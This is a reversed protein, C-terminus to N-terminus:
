NSYYKWFKFEDQVNMIKNAIFIYEWSECLVHIYKALKNWCLDRIFRARRTPFKLNRRIVHDAAQPFEAINSTRTNGPLCANLNHLNQWRAEKNANSFSFASMGREDGGLKWVTISNKSKTCEGGWHTYTSRAYKEKWRRVKCRQCYRILIKKKEEKMPEQITNTLVKDRHM